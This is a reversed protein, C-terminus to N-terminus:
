ILHKRQPKQAKYGEPKQNESYDKVKKKRTKARETHRSVKEIAHSQSM